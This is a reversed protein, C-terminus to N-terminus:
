HRTLFNSHRLQQLLHDIHSCHTRQPAPSPAFLASPLSLSAPLCCPYPLQSYRSAPASALPPCPFFCFSATAPFAPTVTAHKQRAAPAGGTCHLSALAVCWIAGDACACTRQLVAHVGRCVGHEVVRRLAAADDAGGWAGEPGAARPTTGLKLNPVNLLLWACANGAESCCCTGGRSGRQRQRAGRCTGGKM